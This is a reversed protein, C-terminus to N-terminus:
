RPLIRFNLTKPRGFKITDILRRGRLRCADLSPKAPTKVEYYDPQDSELIKNIRVAGIIIRHKPDLAVGVLIGPKQAPNRQWQKVRSGLQWWKVMRELLESDSPPHDLSFGQRGESEEDNIFVVLLPCTTKELISTEDLKSDDMLRMCFKKSHFFNPKM